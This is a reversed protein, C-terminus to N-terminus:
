SRLSAWGTKRDVVVNPCASAKDRSMSSWAGLSSLLTTAAKVISPSRRRVTESAVLASRTVACSMAFALRLSSGSM